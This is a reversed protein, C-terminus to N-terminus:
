APLVVIAPIQDDPVCKSNQVPSSSDAESEEYNNSSDINEM